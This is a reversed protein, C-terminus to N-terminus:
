PFWRPLNSVWWLVVLWMCGFAVFFLCLQGVVFIVVASVIRHGYELQDWRAKIRGIM